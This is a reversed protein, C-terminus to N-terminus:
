RSPVFVFPRTAVPAATSPRKIPKADRTPGTIGPVGGLDERAAADEILEIFKGNLQVRGSLRYRRGVRPAATSRVVIAPTKLPLADLAIGEVTVTRGVFGRLAEPTLAVLPPVAPPATTPPAAPVPMAPRPLPAKPPLPRALWILVLGAILLLVCLVYGFPGMIRRPGPAPMAM